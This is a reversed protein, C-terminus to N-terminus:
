LRAATVTIAYVATAGNALLTEGCATLTAGTTYVDDIILVRHHAAFSSDAQFAHEVNTLREAANMTVQSQTHRERRLAEPVCPVGIQDAVVEALLKSQNYGREKLRTMHLPVPVLIDFMWKQSLLHAALREGLPRAVSRANDYKLAQVAERIKGSHLATSAMGSFLPLQRVQQPFPTLELDHQCTECWFTDIKGCGACRPPFLLDVGVSLWNQLLSRPAFLGPSVRAESAQLYSDNHPSRDTM